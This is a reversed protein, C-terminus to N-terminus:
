LSSCDGIGPRNLIPFNLFITQRETTSRALIASPPPEPHAGFGFPPTPKIATQATDSPSVFAPMYTMNAAACRPTLMAMTAPSIAGITTTTPEESTAAAGAFGATATASAGSAGSSIGSTTRTIMASSVIRLRAYATPRPSLMTALAGGATTVLSGGITAVSTVARSAAAIANHSM